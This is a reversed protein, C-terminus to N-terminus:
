KTYGLQVNSKQQQAEGAQALKHMEEVKAKAADLNTRAQDFDQESVAKQAHLREDRNFTLKHM